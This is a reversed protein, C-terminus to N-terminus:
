DVLLDRIIADSVLYRHEPIVFSDGRADLRKDNRMSQCIRGYYVPYNNKIVNMDCGTATRLSTFIYDNLRDIETEEEIEFATQGKNISDIYASVSSPNVRRIEGDFSHASAGLGLYPIGKWYACNHVANKGPFSFNSIEYHDYGRLAAEKILYEYMNGVTDEDAEDVDGREIRRALATGEAVSLLYASFHPPCFSLLCDLDEKWIELSQHPLGYILDANYDIGSESLLRLTQLAKDSTHRRNIYKLVGSNFSQVGISIRNVGSSKLGSIFEGTVDEPNAEVTFETIASMDVRDTLFDILRALLKEGLISPTGGGIYITSFPEAVEFSRLDFERIVSNVYRDKDRDKGALSYFDCYICKSGCFPIHIYLGAM